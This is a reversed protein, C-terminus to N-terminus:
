EVACAELGQRLRDEDLARGIFVMQTSRAEDPEWARGIEHDILMHVGQFVIRERAGRVALVGKSRYIDPGHEDLLAGIWVNFRSLDLDGEINISVSGVEDDHEHQLVFQHEASPRQLTGSNSEIQLDFEEAHHQAFIAISGTSAGAGSMIELDVSAGDAGLAIRSTPGDVAIAGSTQLTDLDTFIAAARDAQEALWTADAGSPAALALVDITPDPGPQLVMRWAGPDSGIEYIGAWEFPYEPELFSADFDLARQLDFGGVDLVAELPMDARVSRVIRAQSNM